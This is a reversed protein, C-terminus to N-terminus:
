LVPCTPSPRARPTDCGSELAPQKGGSITLVKGNNGALVYLGKAAGVLVDDGDNAGGTLDVIRPRPPRTTLM